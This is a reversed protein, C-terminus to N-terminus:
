NTWGWVKPWPVDMLIPRQYREPNGTLADMVFGIDLATRGEKWIRWALAKATIGCSLLIVDFDIETAEKLVRDFDAWAGGEERTKTQIVGVVKMQDMPGLFQHAAIFDPKKLRDQFARATGGVLLVRKGALYQFLTGDALLGYPLHLEVGNPRPLPFGYMSFLVATNTRIEPWNQQLGVLDAERIAAIFDKRLHFAARTFGAIRFQWPLDNPAKEPIYGGGLLGIECDSVRVLCFPDKAGLFRRKGAATQPGMGIGHTYPLLREEPKGVSARLALIRASEEESLEDFWTRMELFALHEDM